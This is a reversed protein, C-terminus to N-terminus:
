WRWFDIVEYNMMEFYDKLVLRLNQSDEVLMIRTKKVSKM